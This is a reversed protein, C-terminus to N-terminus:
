SSLRLAAWIEARAAFSSLDVDLAREAAAIRARVTHRHVGLARATAEHSCDNALWARVTELLATGHDLDHRVCRRLPPQPSRARRMRRRSRSCAPAHSTPSTAVRAGGRPRPRAAGSRDRTSFADYGAPDSVGIRAGFRDAFEDLVDAQGAHVVLVLGDDGRGFFLGGAREDARLELWERAADRAPPGPM